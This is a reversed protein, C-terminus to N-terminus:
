SEETFDSKKPPEVDEVEKKPEINQRITDFSVRGEEVAIKVAKEKETLGAKKASKVEVLVVDIPVDEAKTKKDYESM